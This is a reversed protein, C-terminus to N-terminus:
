KTPSQRPPSAGHAITHTLTRVLVKEQESRGGEDQLHTAWSQRWELLFHQSLPLPPPNLGVNANLGLEFLLHGRRGDSSM